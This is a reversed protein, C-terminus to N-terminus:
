NKAFPLNSVACARGDSTLLKTGPNRFDYRVMALGITKGSGPSFCKSTVRGAPKGEESFLDTGLQDEAFEIGLDDFIVGRMLKAVHGRFYIRAIIEQGIYCGKNYSILDSVGLEPVVTSEDCDVGFVPIGSEIRLANALDDSLKMLGMSQLSDSFAEEFFVGIGISADFVIGDTTEFSEAFVEFYRMTGTLDELKFDGAFTFRYLNAFLKDRSNADTDILFREGQKLIRALTLLRGQANPFAIPISQGEEIKAVDGTVLGNLFQIAEGGWVAFLARPMERFGGKSEKLRHYEQLLEDKM